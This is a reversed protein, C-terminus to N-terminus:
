TIVNKVAPTVSKLVSRSVTVNVLPIVILMALTIIKGSVFTSLLSINSKVSSTGGKNLPLSDAPLRTLAIPTIISGVLLVHICVYMRVYMHIYLLYM